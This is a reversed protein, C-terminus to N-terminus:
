KKSLRYATLIKGQESYQEIEYEGPGLFLPEPTTCRMTSRDYLYRTHNEILFAVLLTQGECKSIKVPMWKDGLEVRAGYANNRSGLQILYDTNFNDNQSIDFTAVEPQILNRVVISISIVEAQSTEALHNSLMQITYEKNNKRNREFVHNHGVFVILKEGHNLKDTISALRAAMAEKRALQKEPWPLKSKNVSVPEHGYLTFGLAKASRILAAFVPETTYVGNVAMFEKETDSFAEFSIHTFGLTKLERLKSKLFARPEHLAHNDNIALVKVKPSKLHTVIKKWSSQSLTVDNNPLSGQFLLELAMGNHGSLGYYQAQLQKSLKEITEESSPINQSLQWIENASLPAYFFMLLLTLLKM